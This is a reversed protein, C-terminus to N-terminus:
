NWTWAGTPSEYMSHVAGSMAQVVAIALDPYKKLIPKYAEFPKLSAQGLCRAMSIAIYQQTYGGDFSNEMADEVLPPPLLLRPTALMPGHISRFVGDPLQFGLQDLLSCVRMAIPQKTPPELQHHMLGLQSCDPTECFVCPFPWAPEQIGELSPVRHILCRVLVLFDEIEVEPLTM